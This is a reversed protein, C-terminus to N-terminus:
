RCIDSRRDIHEIEVRHSDDRIAYVVRYDGRLASHSGQASLLVVARLGHRTITVREHTHEVEAIYQSLRNRAEGLPM